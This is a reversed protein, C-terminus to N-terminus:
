PRFSCFTGTCVTREFFRGLGEDAEAIRAVADKLRKQVNIRARETASAAQRAKGGRATARGIEARLADRERELKALRGTDAHAHAEAIDEELDAIRQRYAKRAREDLVDGANSEPLSTTDDSALVLVHIEEGPREVLRALLRMGRSDKVRAVSGAHEIRWGEGDRAMRLPGASAATPETADLGVKDLACAEAEKGGLRLIKALEYSTRAVWPAQKREIALRRAERLHQEASPLDGLSADLLGLLRTTTGEYSFPGEGVIIEGGSGFAALVERVARREDDSGGLAYSEALWAVFARQGFFMPGRSGLIALQRRTEDLDGMRAAVASRMAALMVAAHPADRVAAELRTLAADQGPDSRRLRRRLVDHLALSLNVGPDDNLAALETAETVFRDSEAFAGRTTALTSALLLARWRHRPHGMEDSLALLTEVDRELAGFDGAEMHDLAVRTHAMLVRPLDNARIARELLETSVDIRSEVPAYGLVWGTMELVELIADDDNTEKADRIAARALLIPGSPDPAPIKATALRALLRCALTPFRDAVAARAEELLSVIAGDVFGIRVDTARLLAARALLEASGSARASAVVEECLRICADARGAAHAVSAIHLKTDETAPPLLGLARAESTRAHLDFARDVAGERELLRTAREAVALTTAEDGVRLAGLAHRAREVLVDATDDMSALAAEARAHLSTREEAGLTDDIADRTLAHAFTFHGPGLEEILGARLAPSLTDIIRAPLSSKMRAVSAASFERGLIAGCSLAEQAAEPLLAVRDLVVQRVTPSLSRLSGEIRGGVRFARACEVVFLPNGGTHEALRKVTGPSLAEGITQEALRAVDEESLPELRVDLGDRAMRTLRQQVRSTLRPDKSRVTGLVLVRMARLPHALFTLLDLTGLDAAHLDEIIWVAPATTAARALSGVVNEWLQFAQSEDHKEHSLAADIGLARLCPWVPFYPPADAFEWARGWTVIAGREEAETAIASALASKGIGAEGSIAAVTGRGSLAADLGARLTRLAVDRGLLTQTM